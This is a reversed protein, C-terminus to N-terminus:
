TMFDTEFWKKKKLIKKRKTKRGMIMRDPNV